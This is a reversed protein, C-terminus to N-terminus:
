QARLFGLVGSVGHFVGFCWRSELCEPFVVSVRAMDEFVPSYYEPRRTTMPARPPATFSSQRTELALTYRASTRPSVPNRLFLGYTEFTWLNQHDGDTEILSISKLKENFYPVECFAHLDYLPQPLTSLRSSSAIKPSGIIPFSAFAGHCPLPVGSAPRM